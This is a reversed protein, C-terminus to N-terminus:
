FIYRLGFQAQWRSLLSSDFGFTETLTPNFTYTPVNNADVSVSLPNLNNPQQVVGWDSNLLNGFNLIDISFQITHVRNGAVNFNFDQLIKVDWRSRWPALAGYRDFYEGRNDSLYDDQQIYAEFAEAQGPGSFQMQQVEAATPIYLLDNNQFSSDNNINGAYTYNFRGGQAYEFFTSVTTAWKDKGYRFQKSGVGIFRHTDGYRSFSLVDDNANGSIPNFDFADGTIEAEISNVDKANLYNYALSAFLGNNWTKQAKITANWIRGKDSNTFVYANNGKDSDAYVPRNDGPADLTLSPNRLGWNQVHAGNIDKTYSIDASLIIGNELRHDGGVNTRWVQPWKFDPDVIQYFFFDLGQVQNGLWVFPFRGTFIGSGGRIQTTQNGNVDWNFGVRPSILFDNNPLTESDLTTEQDTQPNFYVITPDFTFPKRAINERIKDETDFYLPKDFRVGYTLKFDSTVNWEDQIYLAFQGVNTEALAWGGDNGVGAANSNTFITQANALAAALTGDNVDTLFAALDPYAAFAGVEQNFDGDEDFGYAGLNFSNDFQFKEFSFGATLTHNGLFYNFNNTIQFVKQDLRNNISFPEHGAIIYNSGAGDQITIAPAPSSLPDRFDDFHTYGVQLKNTAKDGFTSNLELQVSQINNNIEYGSNEFQLTQFSPGRIGLATPHAPKEKSADLFNYIIALRNKDNINWDLKLIGKTSEAGYTFGQYRGTDYGLGSLGSQVALLDTELVRSENIAGSGTNPVWGNSGLDDREDREFNAFFFLKNKVIPGGISFGYQNQKLDPKVVDEGKIKGGTLDENRFFGYVTGHFENTGSKTVANVTAGTFGSQTVDYPALSVQIQDIADLSIPQADTQGGPTPADLGFPNNFIAGDLSFNNFQDNRGGFSNGTSSPELRTFDQASRSITPLKTLERRGVSTEAGTRDSGFTSGRDSIVIVEDLAQSESVLKVDITFTKGLTLYVDNQVQDAFGVYSVTVDYPGGVRLNLMKFLGDENTIAGYKTGTPTHVAVINAGLLAQDQDDVVTGSINSTTVQAAISGVMFFLVTTLFVTKFM